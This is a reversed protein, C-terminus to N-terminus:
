DFEYLVNLGQSSHVYFKRNGINVVRENSKIHTGGPFVLYTGPKLANEISATSALLIECTPMLFLYIGQEIASGPVGSVNELADAHGKLDGSVVVIQTTALSSSAKNMNSIKQKLEEVALEDVEKLTGYDHTHNETFVIHKRRLYKFWEIYPLNALITEPQNRSTGSGGLISDVHAVKTKSIAHWIHEFESFPRSKQAGGSATLLVRENEWDVSVIKIEAGPRISKLQLGKLKEIDRLVDHLKM